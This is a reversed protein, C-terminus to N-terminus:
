HRKMGHYAALTAKASNEWTFKQARKLGRERLAARLEASGDLTAIGEAISSTSYPDVILAADGAVEPLCTASSTLVPTGCAMAEVIPIGFGEWISPLLFMRAASYM